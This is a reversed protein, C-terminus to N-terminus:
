HQRALNICPIFYCLFLPKDVFKRCFYRHNKLKTYYYLFLQLFISKQVYKGCFFSPFHIFKDNM